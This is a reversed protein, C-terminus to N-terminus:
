LFEELLEEESLFEDNVTDSVKNGNKDIVKETVESFYDTELSINRNLSFEGDVYKMVKDRLYSNIISTQKTYEPNYVGLLELATKMNFGTLLTKAGLLNFNEFPAYDIPEKLNEHLKLIKDVATITDEISIKGADMCDKLFEAMVNPYALEASPKHTGIYEQYLDVYNDPFVEKLVYLLPYSVLPVELEEDCADYTDVCIKKVNDIAIARSLNVLTYLKPCDIMARVTAFPNVGRFGRNCLDFTFDELEKRTKFKKVYLGMTELKEGLIEYCLRSLPDRCSIVEEENPEEMVICILCGQVHFCLIREICYQLSALNVECDKVKVMFPRAKMGKQVLLDLDILRFPKM